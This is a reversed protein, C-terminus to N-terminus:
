FSSQQGEGCYWNTPLPMRTPQPLARWLPTQGPLCRQNPLSSTLSWPPTLSSMVFDSTTTYDKTSSVQNINRSTLMYEQNREYQLHNTARTNNYGSGDMTNNWAQYLIVHHAVIKVQLSQGISTTELQVTLQCSVIKWSHFILRRNILVTTGIREMRRSKLITPTPDIFLPLQHLIM